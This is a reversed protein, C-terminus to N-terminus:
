LYFDGRNEKGALFVKEVKLNKDLLVLDAKLGEKLQGIKHDLGIRKAPNLTVMNIIENIDLKTANLMNRVAKDLTLVSGAITGDELRAEGNKVFVKQGGLSYEGDELGGAEMSDTVLIIKSLDKVKTVLELVAPNIHVYDAILEATMNGNLVAGVIGPKRHHLGTMANFLHAAHSLGWSEAEKIQEYSAASHAVSVTIAKKNVKEIFEKAGEVEPALTIIKIIDIYEEILELYPDEINEDNQAGKYKKNIFPGEMHVGVPKAGKLGERKMRKVNALAKKIEPEDMTMTTALFSTVGYKVITRSINELTERNAEMTDSGGAGHIHIDIFGPSLYGGDGDITEIDELDTPPVSYIKEIKDSFLIAGDEIIKHPLILSVNKLLKM